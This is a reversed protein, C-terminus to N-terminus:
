KYLYYSLLILLVTLPLESKGFALRISFSFMRYHNEFHMLLLRPLPLAYLTVLFSIPNIKIHEISKNM